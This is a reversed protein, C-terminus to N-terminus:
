GIVAIGRALAAQRSTYVHWAQGVSAFRYALERADDNWVIRTIGLWSLRVGYAGDSTRRLFAYGYGPGSCRSGTATYDPAISPVPELIANM